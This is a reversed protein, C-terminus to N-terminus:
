LLQSLHYSVVPQIANDIVFCANTM